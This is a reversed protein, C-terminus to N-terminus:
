ADSWEDDDEDDSDLVGGTKKPAERMGVRRAAMAAALTDALGASPKAVPSSEAPAEVHHLETGQKIQDLLGGRKITSGTPKTLPASPAPPPAPAKPASSPM